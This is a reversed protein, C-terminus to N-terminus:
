FSSPSPCMEFSTAFTWNLWETTDLEKRGWPSCCALSGQGDGVGPNVWVLTKELSDTRQVLHGFYQLLGQHQTLNLAPPSSPLLPHSPQIAYGVWHVHTQVFGPLYQLVPFGPTSCDMSDRLTLCLKDVLCCCCIYPLFLNISSKWHLISPQNIETGLNGINWKSSFTGYTLYELFGLVM